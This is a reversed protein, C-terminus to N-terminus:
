ARPCVPFVNTDAVIHGCCRTRTQSLSLVRFLFQFFISRRSEREKSYPVTWMVSSLNSFSDFTKREPWKPNTPLIVPRLRKQFAGNEFKKLGHVRFRLAPSESEEPKFSSRNPFARNEHRIITCPPGVSRLFFAANESKDTTNHVPNLCFRNM